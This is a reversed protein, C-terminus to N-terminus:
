CPITDAYQTKFDELTAIGDPLTAEDVLLVPIGNRIPYRLGADLPSTAVLWDGDQQLKSRTLPCVLIALLDDSLSAAPALHAPAGAASQGAPNAGSEAEPADPSEPADTPSSPSEPPNNEPM